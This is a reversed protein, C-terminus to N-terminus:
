LIAFDLHSCMSPTDAHLHRCWETHSIHSPLPKKKFPPNPGNPPANAVITDNHPLNTSTMTELVRSFSTSLTITGNLTATLRAHPSEKPCHFICCHQAPWRRHYHHSQPYNAADNQCRCYIEMTLPCEFPMTTTATNQQPHGARCRGRM